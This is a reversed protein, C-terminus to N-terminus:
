IKVYGGPGGEYSLRGHWGSNYPCLSLILVLKVEHMM